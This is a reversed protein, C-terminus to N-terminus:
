NAFWDPVTADPDNRKQDDQRNTFMWDCFEDAAEGAEMDAPIRGSARVAQRMVLNANGSEFVNRYTDRNDPDTALDIANTLFATQVIWLFEEQKTM